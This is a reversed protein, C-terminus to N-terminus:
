KKKQGDLYLGLASALTTLGAPNAQLPLALSKITKEALKKYKVDGTKVWLRVLNRAALSNGSPQAGDYQDKARAFLKEHDSATYFFGGHKADHHYKVMTDTLEKAADLWK